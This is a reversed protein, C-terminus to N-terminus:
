RLAEPNDIGRELAELFEEDTFIRGQSGETLERDAEREGAQWEETWFWAQDRPILAAPTLVVRGQEVSVLVHDGERLGLQRRVHLPLTLQGKSRIVVDRPVEGAPQAM